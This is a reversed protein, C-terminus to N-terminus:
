SLTGPVQFFGDYQEPAAALLEDRPLLQAAVDERMTNREGLVTVLPEVGGTDVRELAAFSSVLADFRKGIAEREDDALDLMAMAEYERIDLM